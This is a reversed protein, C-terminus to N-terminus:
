KQQITSLFALLALIRGRVITEKNAKTIGRAKAFEEGWIPMTRSRHEALVKSGSVVEYVGWIPLIGGNRKALTTLDPTRVSEKGTDVAGGMANDGHCRVCHRKFLDRGSDVIVKDTVFLDIAQASPVWQAITIFLFLALHSRV